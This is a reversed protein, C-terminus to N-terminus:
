TIASIAQYSKEGIGLRERLMASTMRLEEVYRLSSTNFFFTVISYHVRFQKRELSYRKDSRERFPYSRFKKICSAM